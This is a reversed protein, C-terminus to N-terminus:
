LCLTCRIRASKPKKFLHFALTSQRQTDAAITEAVDEDSPRTQSEAEAMYFWVDQAGTNPSQYASDVPQGSPAPQAADASVPAPLMDRDLSM